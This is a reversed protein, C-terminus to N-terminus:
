KEGSIIYVPNLASMMNLAGIERNRSISIQVIEYQMKNRKFAELVRGLSELAIVDCVIKASSNKLLIKDVIEEIRGSSGGIFVIEPCPLEELIEPATGEIVEVNGIHFQRINKNILAIADANKEISYVRGEYAALGMEVTISGTGAGIDYCISRPGVGLKSLVVSRVESKTMPVDARVFKEDPIGTPISADADPNEVLLVALPPFEMNKLQAASAYIIKEDPMDLNVGCVAKLEGYGANELKELIQGVNGGTLAFVYRSRRVADVINCERGHCSILKVDQWSLKIKAFFSNVSSIGPIFFISYENENWGEAFYAAASYFGTDGSVLVAINKEAANEIAARFEAKKYCACSKKNEFAFEEILRESGLLLEASKIAERAEQTITNEATGAGVVSIYKM